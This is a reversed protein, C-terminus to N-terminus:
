EKEEELESLEKIFKIEMEDLKILLEVIRIQLWIKVTLYFFLMITIGFFTFNLGITFPKTIPNNNLTLVAILSILAFNIYFLSLSYNLKTLEDLKYHVFTKIKEEKFITELLKEKKIRRKAKKLDGNVVEKLFNYIFWYRMLFPTLIILSFIVGVIFFFNSQEM